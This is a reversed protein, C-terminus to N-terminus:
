QAPNIECANRSAFERSKVDRELSNSFMVAGGVYLM